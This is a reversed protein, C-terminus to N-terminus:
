EEEEHTAWCRLEVRSEGIAGRVRQIKMAKENAWPLPQKTEFDTLLLAIDVGPDLTAATVVDLKIALSYWYYPDSWLAERHDREFDVSANIALVTPMGHDSKPRSVGSRAPTLDVRGNTAATGERSAGVAGAADAYMPHLTMQKRRQYDKTLAIGATTHRVSEALETPSSVHWNRIGAITDSLGPALDPEISVLGDLQTETITMVPTGPAALREIHFDGLRDVCWWAGFSDAIDTLVQDAGVSGDVFMGLQYYHTGSFSFTFAEFEALDYDTWSRLAMVQLLVNPVDAQTRASSLETYATSQPGALDALIRGFTAQNVAFGYHPATNYAVWQTTPTLVAGADLVRVVTNSSSNHGSYRKNAGDTELVPCSVPRGLTIPVLQGAQDGTAYVETSIPEAFAAMGDAIGIRIAMGNVLDCSDIKVRAVVTLDGFADEDTGILIRAARRRLMSFVLATIRGDANALEIDGFGIRARGGGWFITTIQREFTIRGTLRADAIVGAAADVYRTDSFYRLGSPTDIEVIVVNLPQRTM